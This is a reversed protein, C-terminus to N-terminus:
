GAPYFVLLTGGTATSPAHSTGTDCHIFDGAHHRSGKGALGNFEGEVVYVEEPGHTHVDEGPWGAGPEFAVLIAAAARDDPRYLDVM